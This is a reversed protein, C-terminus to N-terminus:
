EADNEGGIRVYDLADLHRLNQVCTDCYVPERKSAPLRRKSKIKEFLPVSSKKNEFVKRYEKCVDEYDALILLEEDNYPGAGARELVLERLACLNDYDYQLNNKYEESYKLM